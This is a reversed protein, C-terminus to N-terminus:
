RNRCAAVQPLIAYFLNGQGPASRLASAAARASRRHAQDSGLGFRYPRQGRDESMVAPGMTKLFIRIESQIM